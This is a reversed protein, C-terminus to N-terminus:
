LLLQGALWADIKAEMLNLPLSGEELIRDHFTRIDFNDGLQEQARKRLELIKLMGLKYGLAQGPWVAYREIEGTAEDRHIGETAISYDIAKAGAFYM